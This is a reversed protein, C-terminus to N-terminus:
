EGFHRSPTNESTTPSLIGLASKSRTSSAHADLKGLSLLVVIADLGRIPM